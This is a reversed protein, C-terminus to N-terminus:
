ASSINFNSAGIMRLEEELFTVGHLQLIDLDRNMAYALPPYKAITDPSPYGSSWWDLGRERFIQMHQNPWKADADDPSRGRRTSSSMHQLRLQWAFHEHLPNDPPLLYSEIKIPQSGVLSM